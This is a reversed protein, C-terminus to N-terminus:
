GQFKWMSHTHGGVFFSIEKPGFKSVQKKNTKFQVWADRKVFNYPANSKRSNIHTKPSLEPPAGPSWCMEEMKLQGENHILKSYCQSSLLRAAKLFMISSSENKGGKLKVGPIDRPKGQLSEKNCLNTLCLRPFDNFIKLKHRHSWKCPWIQGLTIYNVQIDM